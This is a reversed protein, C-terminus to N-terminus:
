NNQSTLYKFHEDQLRNKMTEIAKESNDIGVFNRQLDAAAVLTTGSGSYIDLVISNKNSSSKVILKLLELNKQTPYEVSQPDKFKWIDQRKPGKSEEAYRKKRPNGNSSWHIKGEQDLKELKEPPYRWHRGEPPDMDRWKDGTAGDETEGPAHIPTTGYRRGDEEQKPFLKELQDETYEQRPNNWIHNNTKTYFLIKDTMNGYANREFNKPNCKIRTITNLYSEKGFINDMLIKVYPEMANDIHIYISGKESLLERSLILRKSLSKLYKKGELKDEYATSGKDGFQKVKEDGMNFSRGTSFPPDMYILDVEVDKDILEKLAKLNNEKIIKNKTNEKSDLKRQGNEEKIEFNPKEIEDLLNSLNYDLSLDIEM